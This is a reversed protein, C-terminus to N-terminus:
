TINNKPKTPKAMRQSSMGTTGMSSARTNPRDRSSFKRTASVDDFPSIEMKKEEVIPQTVTNSVQDPAPVPNIEQPEPAKAVPNQITEPVLESKTLPAPVSQIPALFNHTVVILLKM